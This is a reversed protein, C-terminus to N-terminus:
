KGGFIEAAAEVLDTTPGQDAAKLDKEMLCLIRVPKKFLASLIDEVARSAKVEAVRDKHFSSSFTLRVADKEVAAVSADKLSMRVSAPHVQELISAWHTLVAAATFEEAEVLASKTEAAQPPPASVADKPTMAEREPSQITLKPMTGAHQRPGTKAPSLQETCLSLLAAELALVPIPSVRLKRLADLLTETMYMYATPDEKREISEHMHTRIISLLDTAIIDIPVNSEEVRRMIGTIEAMDRKTLATVIEEM